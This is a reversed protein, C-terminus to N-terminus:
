LLAAAITALELGRRAIDFAVAPVASWDTRANVVGAAAATELRARDAIPNGSLLDSIDRAESTSLSKFAELVHGAAERVLPEAASALDVYLQAKALLTDDM